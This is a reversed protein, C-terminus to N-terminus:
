LNREAKWKHVTLFSLFIQLNNRHEKTYDTTKFKGNDQLYIVGINKLGTVIDVTGAFRYVPHYLRVEFAPAKVREETETVGETVLMKYASLQLANVPQPSGSKIDWIGPVISAQATKFAELYPILVPDLTEEDLEGLNYYEVAKHVYEGKLRTEEKANGYFNYPLVQTVSPVAVGDMYYTHTEPDFRFKSM